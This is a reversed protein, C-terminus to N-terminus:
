LFIVFPIANFGLTWLPGHRANPRVPGHAATDYIHISLTVRTTPPPPITGPAWPLVERVVQGVSEKDKQEWPPGWQERMDLYDPHDQFQTLNNRNPPRSGNSNNFNCRPSQPRLHWSERLTSDQRILLQPPPM